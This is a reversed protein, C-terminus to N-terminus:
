IAKDILATRATAQETLTTDSSQHISESLEKINVGDALTISAFYHRLAHM